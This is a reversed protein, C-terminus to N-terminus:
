GRSVEIRKTVLKELAAQDVSICGMVVVRRLAEARSLHQVGVDTLETLVLVRLAPCRRIHGIADDDVNDCYSIDLHSLRTLRSVTRLAASTITDCGSLNLNTLHPCSGCINHLATDRLQHNHSVNLVRLRTCVALSLFCNASIDSTASLDLTTLNTLRAAAEVSFDGFIASRSTFYICTMCGSDRWFVVKSRQVEVETTDDPARTSLVNLPGEGLPVPVHVDHDIVPPLFRRCKWANLQVVLIPSLDQSHTWDVAPCQETAGREFVDHLLVSAVADSHLQGLKLTAEPFLRLLYGAYTADDSTMNHQEGEGGELDIGGPGATALARRINDDPCTRVGERVVRHRAFEDDVVRCHVVGDEVHTIELFVHPRLLYVGRFRRQDPQVPVVHVDGETVSIKLHWRYTGTPEPESRVVMPPGSHVITNSGLFVSVDDVGVYVTTVSHDIPTCGLARYLIDALAWHTDCANRRVTEEVGSVKIDAVGFENLITKDSTLYDQYVHELDPANPSPLWVCPALLAGDETWQARQAVHEWANYYVSGVVAAQAVDFLCMKEFTVTRLLPVVRGPHVIMHAEHQSVFRILIPENDSLSAMEFLHATEVLLSGGDDGFVSSAWSVGLDALAPELEEVTSVPSPAVMVPSASSRFVAELAASDADTLSISGDTACWSASVNRHLMVYLQRQIDDNIDPHLESSVIAAHIENPDFLATPDGNRAVSALVELWNMDTARSPHYQSPWPDADELIMRRFMHKTTRRRYPLQVKTRSELKRRVREIEQTLQTLTKEQSHISKHLTRCEREMIARYDIGPSRDLSPSLPTQPTYPTCSQSTTSRPSVADSASQLRMFVSSSKLPKVTPQPDRRALANRTSATLSEMVSSAATNTRSFAGNSAGGGGGGGNIMRPPPTHTRAPSRSANRVRAVTTLNTAPTPTRGRAVKPSPRRVAGGADYTGSLAAPPPPSCSSRQPTPLRGTPTLTRVCTKTQNNSSAPSSVVAKSPTPTRTLAVRALSRLEYPSKPLPNHVDLLRRPKSM